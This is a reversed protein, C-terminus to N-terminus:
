ELMGFYMGCAIDSGSTAGISLLSSASIYVEEKEGECLDRICNQVYEHYDWDLANELMQASLDTTKGLSNRVVNHLIQVFKMNKSLHNVMALFGTLMDDGSPTLGQGLGILNQALSPDERLKRIVRLGHFRCESNDQINRWASQRPAKRDLVAKFASINENKVTKNRYNKNVPGKWAATNKLNITYNALQIQGSLLVCYDGTKVGCDIYNGPITLFSSSCGIGQAAVSLLNKGTSVNVVRDFVSHIPFFHEPLIECYPQWKEGACVANIEM